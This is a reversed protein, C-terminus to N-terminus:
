HHKARGGDRPEHRVTLCGGDCGVEALEAGRPAFTGSKHPQVKRGKSISLSVAMASCPIAVAGALWVLYEFARPSRAYQPRLIRFGVGLGEGSRDGSRELVVDVM